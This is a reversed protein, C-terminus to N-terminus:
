SYTCGAILEQFDLTGTYTFSLHAQVPMQAAAGGDPFQIAFNTNRDPGATPLGSLDVVLPSSSPPTQVDFGATGGVEIVARLQQSTPGQAAWTVTLNGALIRAGDYLIICNGLHTLAPGAGGGTLTLDYVRDHVQVDLAPTVNLDSGVNSTRPGEAQTAPPSADEAGGEGNPPSSCGALVLPLLFAALMWRM